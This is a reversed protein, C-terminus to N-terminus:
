QAIVAGQFIAIASIFYVLIRALPSPRGTVVLAFELTGNASAGSNVAAWNAATSSM